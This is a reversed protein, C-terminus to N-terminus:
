MGISGYAQGEKMDQAECDAQLVIRGDPSTQKEEATM